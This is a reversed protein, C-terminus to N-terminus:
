FREFELCEKLYNPLRENIIETLQLIDFESPACIDKDRYIEHYEAIEGSRETNVGLAVKGDFEGVTLSLKLEGTYLLDIYSVQLGALDRKRGHGKSYEGDEYTEEAIVISAISEDDSGHGVTHVRDSILQRLVEAFENFLEKLNDEELCEILAPFYGDVLKNITTVIAM